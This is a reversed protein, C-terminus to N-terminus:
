EHFAKVTKPKLIIVIKNSSSNIDNLNLEVTSGGEYIKTYKYNYYVRGIRDRYNGVVIFDDEKKGTYDSVGAIPLVDM